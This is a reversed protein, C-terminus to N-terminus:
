SNSAYTQGDLHNVPVIGRITNTLFIAEAKKLENLKFKKEYLSIKLESALQIINSRMVGDLCFTSLPPTYLKKNQIFFINSSSAESVYGDLTFLLADEFGEDQAYMSALIYPLANSTKCGNLPSPSLRFEDYTCLNVPYLSQYTNGDFPYVEILYGPERDIPSYAGKGKRYIQIRARGHGNIEKEKILFQVNKLLLLAFLDVNAQLKLIEMGRRLRDMHKEWFLIKGEYIRITEFLGDGYKVARNLLEEGQKIEGNFLYM